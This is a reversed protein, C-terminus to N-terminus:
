LQGILKHTQALVRTPPHIRLAIEHWALVQDPSPAATVAAFPTVPQLFVETAPATAAIMQMARGLETPDTDPGVVIKVFAQKSSALTLFRRHAELDVGQGDVSHLKIDMAVVDIWELVRALGDVLMGNTELYLRHGRDLLLPALSALRSSQLLPEGGTLSV